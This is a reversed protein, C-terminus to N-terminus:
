PRMIEISGINRKDFEKALYEYTESPNEDFMDGYRGTPSLKISIREAPWVKLAIDVLEM